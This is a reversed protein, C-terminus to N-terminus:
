RDRRLHSADRRRMVTWLARHDSAETRVTGAGRVDFGRAFVHDLLLSGFFYDATDDISATAHDFGRVRFASRVRPVSWRELTNLDGAIIVPVRPHHRAAADDLVTAYQDLRARLSVVATSAHVSYVALAGGPAAVTGGIAISQVGTLPNQHPLVIKHDDLIPWRSLIANGFDGTEIRTTGPYYVHHMGLVRAIEAAGPASMEQLVVVDAERLAEHTSLAAAAGDICRALRVNFTVIRIAEPERDVAAAEARGAYRPGAPDLYNCVACGGQAAFVLVSAAAVV